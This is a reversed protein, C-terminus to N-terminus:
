IIINQIIMEIKYFVPCIYPTSILMGDYKITQVHQGKREAYSSQFHTPFGYILLLSSGITTQMIANFSQSFFITEFNICTIPTINGKNSLERISVFLM